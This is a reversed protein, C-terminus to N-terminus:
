ALSRNGPIGRQKKNGQQRSRNENAKIMVLGRMEGATLDVIVSGDRGKLKDILKYLELWNDLEKRKNHYSQHKEQSVNWLTQRESYNKNVMQWEDRLKESLAVIKELYEVSLSGTLVELDKATKKITPRLKDLAQRVTEKLYIFIYICVRLM